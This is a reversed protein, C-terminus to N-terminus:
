RWCCANSTAGPCRSPRPTRPARSPFARRRGDRAARARRGSGGLVLISRERARLARHHDDRRRPGGRPTGCAPLARGRRHLASLAQRGSRHRCTPNCRRDPRLLGACARALDTSRQGRTRRARAGRGSTRRDLSGAVTVLRESVTVHDLSLAVDGIPAAPREGAVVVEGFMMSSSCTPRFRPKSTGSWTCWAADRDGSPM